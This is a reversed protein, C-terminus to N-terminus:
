QPSSQRIRLDRGLQEDAALGHLIVQAVDVGLAAHLSPLLQPAEDLLPALRGRNLRSQRTTTSQEKSIKRLQAAAAHWAALVAKTQEPTPRAAPGKSIRAAILVRRFSTPASFKM